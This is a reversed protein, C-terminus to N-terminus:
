FGGGSVIVYLFHVSGIEFPVRACEYGGLSITFTAGRLILQWRRWVLVTGRMLRGSIVPPKLTSTLSPDSARVKLGALREQPLTNM